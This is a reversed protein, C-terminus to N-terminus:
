LFAFWGKIHWLIISDTNLKTSSGILVSELCINPTKNYKKESFLVTVSGPKWIKSHINYKFCINLDAYKHIDM